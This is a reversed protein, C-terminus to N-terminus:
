VISNEAGWGAHEPLIGIDPSYADPNMLLYIGCDHLMLAGNALMKRTAEERVAVLYPQCDRLIRFDIEPNRNLFTILRDAKQNHPVLISEQEDRIIKYRESGQKFCLTLKKAGQQELSEMVAPQDWKKGQEQRWYLNRFYHHVADPLLPNPYRPSLERTADAGSRLLGAPPLKQTDFLFVNGKTPQNSADRLKGERNCRGAAQAISDFGAPARYVNPFDIDVGAEILQTSIVRCPLRDNLRARIEALKERRHQACMFTSLHYCGEKGHLDTLSKYLTAAHPRSNVICLVQRHDSLRAVLQEDTLAGLRQVHVRDLEHHFAAPDPIIPRIQDAPIGIDFEGPRCELAPQTATCLVVTCGYNLVLEKLAALTPQLLDVPITQAEDLIIVSNALRHLKRCPSTKSAFLSEYLQVNTTVILEADWNESALRNRRTAKAEQINSHHELITSEGLPKLADRYVDVTQEIISTFPIAMVVRRLDSNQAPIRQHHLIHHLAFALSALTKGGGTPVNLSFFGRSLPAAALCHDLIRKRAANVPTPTAKQQKDALHRDLHAALQDFPVPTRRREEAAPPNSYEETALRDADVLASFLMRTFFALQFGFSARTFEFPPVAPTPPLQLDSPLTVPPVRPATAALRATLSSSGNGDLAMYDTLGAHHGAICFAVIDALVPDKILRHAHQAGFTSHDVKRTHLPTPNERSAPPINPQDEEGANPDATARLYDQFAASYKGLDHLMGIYAGWPGARFADAFHAAKQAVAKLHVDLPEWNELPGPRTHAYAAPPM